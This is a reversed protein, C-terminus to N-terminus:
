IKLDSKEVSSMGKISSGDITFGDKIFKETNKGSEEMAMLEGDINLFHYAIFPPYQQKKEEM